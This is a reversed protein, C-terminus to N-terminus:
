GPETGFQIGCHLYGGTPGLLTVEGNLDSKGLGMPSWLGQVRYAYAAQPMRIRYATHSQDSKGM